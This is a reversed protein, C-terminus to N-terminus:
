VITSETYWVHHGTFPQCYGTKTGRGLFVVLTPIGFQWMLHPKPKFAM